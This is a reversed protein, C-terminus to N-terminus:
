ADASDDATDFAEDAKPLRPPRGVPELIPFEEQVDALERFRRVCPLLRSDWSGVADNFTGVAKGLNKGTETLHGVFTALRRHLELGQEAIKRANEAIQHQQWGFAVTKLLALLTVPSALLVREGFAYELLAADREYAVALCMDNPVFMVVFDPAREFQRWYARQALKRVHDHLAEKHEDLRVNRTAEETAEMASLYASMPVKADVPLVGGNPLYVILDVRGEKGRAQEEFDVHPAMGAMDVIRRLQHEGWRGRVTSSRLAENLRASTDLLRANAEALQRLHEELGKYAGERSKELERVQADLKGLEDNLPRVLGSVEEKQTKWDGRVATLVADLQDRARKLFEDANSQLSESALAGFAERLQQMSRDTWEAKERQSERDQQLAAAEAALTTKEEQLRAVQGELDPIRRAAEESRARAEISEQLRAEAEAARRTLSSVGSRALLYAAVGGLVAGVVLMAAGFLAQEV